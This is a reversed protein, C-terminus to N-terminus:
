FINYLKLRDTVYNDAFRVQQYIDVKYGAICFDYDPKLWSVNRTLEDIARVGIDSAIPAPDKFLLM